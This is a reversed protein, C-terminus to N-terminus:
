VSLLDEEKVRLIQEIKDISENTVKQIQDQTARAEDESMEKNKQMKKIRDNIGRRHNRMSVRYDEAMKRIHRVLEKRREETLEPLPM